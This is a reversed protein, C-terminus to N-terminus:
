FVEGHKEYENEYILCVFIYYDNRSSIQLEM